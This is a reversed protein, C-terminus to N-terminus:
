WRPLPLNKGEGGGHLLGGVDELREPILARAKRVERPMNWGLIGELGGRANRYGIVFANEEPDGAIVETRAERGILGHVQIKVDYQDTWFFPIPSFEEGAGMLSAAVAMGQETANMRHEVRMRRGYRPNFWNAVDGAAYVCPMARCFADCVVGNGLPVGSGELWRTAPVGGAAVLVLDAKLIRGDMLRVGTARGDDATLVRDVGVGFRMEVGNAAHLAALRRAVLPGVKDIMPAQAPDIMRVRAGRAVALAALECGLVGSGIVLVDHATELATTVRVADDFDRLTLGGGPLRRAGVGTAIVLADWGVMGGDALTVTSNAVDLGVAAVGLRLDLDLRELDGHSALSLREFDGTAVGGAKSLPPRDYFARTEAGIVTIARDFGQDRLAEAVALGAASAGVIAIRKPGAM